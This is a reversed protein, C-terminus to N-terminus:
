LKKNLNDVIERLKPDKIDKEKEETTIGWESVISNEIAVFAHPAGAPIVGSDGTEVIREEEGCIFRVKGKIVVFNEDNSHVCGGRASGRKMELFTFEKSNDLLDDMLYIGGRNDEHLKILKLEKKRYFDKIKGCIFSIQDSSIAPGNPLWVVNDSIYTSNPFDSDNGTHSYPPNRHVPPWCPRSYIESSKLNEILEDKDKVIVDIWLPIEGSDINIPPFSVEKIESLESEYKKRQEVLMKKREEIKRFQSLGLAASLDNFKLNFGKEKHLFEKDIRGFDCLSRMTEYYRDDDTVIVGGQGCTIIKNSQLSFCGAKGITGLFKGDEQSGLAGAADEIISLNHKGAIFKLSEMDASRGITHVPIIATTKHTIKDEIKSPDITMRKKEIDVPVSKGGAWEVAMATAIMTMDPIIVEFDKVGKLKADAKVALFLAATANTTLIVHKVGLYKKISLELERSKPGENVWNDRIVESVEKIDDEDFRPENWNIRTM